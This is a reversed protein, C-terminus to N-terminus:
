IMPIHNQAHHIYTYKLVGMYFNYIIGPSLNSGQGILLIPIGFTLHGFRNNQTVKIVYM